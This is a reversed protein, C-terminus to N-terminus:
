VKQLLVEYGVSENKWDCYVATLNCQPCRCGLYLWCVDESNEYLSVGISIELDDNGCPCGCEELVAHDLYDRSDGIPHRAGCQACQRIAAGENEDLSLRFTQGGCSCMADAFHLAFYGNLKSYRQIERHIDSQSDGYWYQGRKTLMWHM